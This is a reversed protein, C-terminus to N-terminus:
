RASSAVRRRSPREAPKESPRESAPRELVMTEDQPGRDNSARPAAQKEGRQRPRAEPLSLGEGINGLREHLLAIEEMVRRRHEELASLQERRVTEEARTREAMERAEARAREVLDKREAAAAARADDVQAAVAAGAGALAEQAQVFLEEAARSLEECRATAQEVVHTATAEAAVTTAHAADEARRRVEEANQFSAQMIKSVRDGLAKMSEPTATLTGADVSALRRRFQEAEANARAAATECQQARYDAQEIWQHLREIYDDVQMRDYGRVASAFRPTGHEENAEIV